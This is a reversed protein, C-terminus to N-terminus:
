NRGFDLSQGPHILNPDSGIVDKNDAYLEPWGGRVSREAAIKSLNDGPRVTYDGRDADRSGRDRDGFDGTGPKRHKGTGPTESPTAPEPSEASASPDPAPDGRHRAGGPTGTSDSPSPTDSPSASETPGSSESPQETPRESEASATPETPESPEASETPEGSPEPSEPTVSPPLSDRGQGPSQEDGELETGDTCHAFARAGEADLIREAVAIQQVRSAYDPREAFEDGGYQEWQEPTLQLGGYYGNGTDAAWMGGSECQAVRDWTDGDAAQAAGASLLPLAIGAGTMGAAVVFAPAQRLRRHRGNGSLM